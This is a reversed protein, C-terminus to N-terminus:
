IQLTHMISVHAALVCGCDYVIAVSRSLAHIKSNGKKFYNVLHYALKVPQKTTECIQWINYNSQRTKTRRSKCLQCKFAM